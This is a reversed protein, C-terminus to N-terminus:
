QSSQLAIHPVTTITVMEPGAPLKSRPLFANHSRDSFIGPLCWSCLRSFASSGVTPIRCQPKSVHAGPRRFCQFSDLPFAVHTVGSCFAWSPLSDAPFTHAQAGPFKYKNEWTRGLRLQKLSIFGATAHPSIYLSPGGSEAGLRLSPM